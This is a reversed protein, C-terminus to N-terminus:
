LVGEGPDGWLWRIHGNQELSGEPLFLGLSYQSSWPSYFLRLTSYSSCQILLGLSPCAHQTSRGGQHIQDSRVKVQDHKGYRSFSTTLDNNTGELKWINDRLDQYKLLIKCLIINLGFSHSQMTCNRAFVFVFILCLSSGATGGFDPWLYLCSRRHDLLLPM